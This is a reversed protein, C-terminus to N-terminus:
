AVPAREVRYRTNVFQGVARAELLTLRSPLVDRPLLPRGDALFAPALTLMLEDLAGADLFQGALDGGGQVWVDRGDAAARIDPLHEAVPGDVLRVDGGAPVDLDRSTFVFVPRGDFFTQWKEPEALVNEQRLIWQYTTSGMVLAGVGDVFGDDGSEESGEGSVAFLWDLSDDNDALYGNLTTATNYVISM